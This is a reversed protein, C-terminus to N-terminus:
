KNDFAKHDITNDSKNEVKNSSNESNNIKEDNEEGKMVVNKIDVTHLVNKKSSHESSLTKEENFIGVGVAALVAAGLLPGNDYECVSVPIGAVDSCM